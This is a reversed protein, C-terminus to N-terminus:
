ASPPAGEGGAPADESVPGDVGEVRLQPLFGTEIAVVLEAKVIDDAQTRTGEVRDNLIDGCRSFFGVLEGRYTQAALLLLNVFAFELFSKM